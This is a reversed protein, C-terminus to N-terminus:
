STAQIEIRETAPDVIVDKEEGPALTTVVQRIVIVDISEALVNKVKVV